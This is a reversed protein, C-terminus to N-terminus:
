VASLDRVRRLQNEGRRHRRLHVHHATCGSSVKEDHFERRDIKHNNATDAAYPSLAMLHIQICYFHNLIKNSIFFSPCTNSKDTKNNM